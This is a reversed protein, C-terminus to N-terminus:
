PLVSWDSHFEMEHNEIIEMVDQEDFGYKHHRFCDLLRFIRLYNDEDIPYDDSGWSADDYFAEVDPMEGILGNVTEIFHKIREEKSIPSGVKGLMKFIDEVEESNLGEEYLLDMFDDKKGKDILHSYKRLFNKVEPYIKM